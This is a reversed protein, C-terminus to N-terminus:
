APKRGISHYVFGLKKMEKPEFLNRGDIITPHGLNKKIKALDMKRFDDWETLILLCDAGKAAEYLSDKLVVNKLLKKANEMSIPDYAQIKAGREQLLRESM